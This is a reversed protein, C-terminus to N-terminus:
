EMLLPALVELRGDIEGDFSLGLLQAVLPKLHVNEVPSLVQGSRIGPGEAILIGGMAEVRYPDWGHAARNSYPRPKAVTSYSLYNGGHGVLVLDGLRDSNRFQLYNPLGDQLYVDFGEGRQLAAYIRGTEERSDTYVMAMPGAIFRHDGLDVLDAINITREVEAMGHDSVVLLNIPLGSAKIVGRLKGIMSDVYRVAEGTGEGDPGHMHGASDTLSYYLFILHPREADPLQLWQQVKDVRLDYPTDQKFTFWYSPQMGLVDAESGVWFYSAALMGQQEALVWLPVGAYWSGDEVLSRDSIRYTSNKQRSHFTNKVIGHNGPYLGTAMGYHNPFTESPFAPILRKVYSGKEMMDLLEVAGHRRAYDHRFGDLSVMVVYPQQMAWANNQRGSRHELRELVELNLSQDFEYLKPDAHVTGLALGCVTLLKAGLSGSRISRVVRM